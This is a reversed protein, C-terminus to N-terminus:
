LQPPDSLRDDCRLRAGLDAWQPHDHLLERGGHLIAQAVRPGGPQDLADDTFHCALRDFSSAVDLRIAAEAACLIVAGPAESATKPDLLRALSQRSEPADIALLARAAPARYRPDTGDVLRTLLPTAPAYALEGLRDILSVALSFRSRRTLRASNVIVELLALAGEGTQLAPHVSLLRDSEVEVDTSACSHMLDEVSAAAIAEDPVLSPRVRGDLWLSALSERSLRPSLKSFVNAISRAVAGELSWPHAATLDTTRLVEELLVAGREPDVEALLALSVSRLEEADSCLAAFLASPDDFARRLPVCMEGRLVVLASRQAADWVQVPDAAQLLACARELV